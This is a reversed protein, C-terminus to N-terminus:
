ASYMHLVAEECHQSDPDPDLHIRILSRQPDPDTNRIRIGFVSGSGRLYIYSINSAFPSLNMWLIVMLISLQSFIEEIAM